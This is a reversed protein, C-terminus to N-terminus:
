RYVKKTLQDNIPSGLSDGWRHRSFSVFFYPPSDISDGLWNGRPLLEPGRLTPQCVPFPKKMKHIYVDKPLGLTAGTCRYMTWEGAQRTGMWPTPESNVSNYRATWKMPPLGRAITSRSRRDTHLSSFNNFWPAIYDSYVNSHDEWFM